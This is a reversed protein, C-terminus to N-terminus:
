SALLVYPQLRPRHPAVQWDIWGALAPASKMAIWVKRRVRRLVRAPQLSPNRIISLALARRIHDDPTRAKGPLQRDCGPRRRGTGFKEFGEVDDGQWCHLSIPVAALRALAAETDVGAEAYRERAVRYASDIRATM